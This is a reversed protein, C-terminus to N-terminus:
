RGRRGVPARSRGSRGAKQSPSAVLTARGRPAPPAPAGRGEPSVALYAVTTMGVGGRAMVRHFDVLRDTVLGKRAMGEFTAAKVTRNRLRVPGLSGVVLLDATRAHDLLAQAPAGEVLEGRVEITPALERAQSM